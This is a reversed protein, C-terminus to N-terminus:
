PALVDSEAPTRQTTADGRRGGLEDRVQEDLEVHVYMESLEYVDVNHGRAALERALVVFEGSALEAIQREVKPAHVDSEVFFGASSARLVEREGDAIELILELRLILAEGRQHEEVWRQWSEDGAAAEAKAHALAQPSDDLRAHAALRQVFLVRYAYWWGPLTM